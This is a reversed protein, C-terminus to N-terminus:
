CSVFYYYVENNFLEVSGTRNNLWVKSKYIFVYKKCM